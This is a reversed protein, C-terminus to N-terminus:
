YTRSLLERVEQDVVNQGIEFGQFKRYLPSLAHSTRQALASDPLNLPVTLHSIATDDDAVTGMASFFRTSRANSLRRGALDTWRLTVALSAEEPNQAMARGIAVAEILADAVRWIPLTIALVRASKLDKSLDEDFGRIAYLRASPEIRWFDVTDSPWEQSLDVFLREWGDSTMKPRDNMAASDLTVFFPLGTFRRNASRILNLLSHNAAINDKLAGIVTAAIEFYGIKPVVVGDKALRADFAARGADLWQANLESADPMPPQDAVNILAAFRGLVSEDLHRRLFRGIDAERNDFCLECLRDWDHWNASATSVTNNSKLTRVYVANIPLIPRQTQPDKIESKTAVPTRVGPPVCIVPFDKGDKTAYQVLVEFPESSFRTILAQIADQGFAARLSEPRDAAVADMTTDDFGIVLRGGNNNRLALLAKVLKTKGEPSEADFWSKVEVSYSESLNKLLYNSDDITPFMNM